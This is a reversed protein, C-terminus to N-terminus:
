ELTQDCQKSVFVFTSPTDFLWLYFLLEVSQDNYLLNTDSITTLPGPQADKVDKNSLFSLSLSLSLSLSALM